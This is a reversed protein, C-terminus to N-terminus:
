WTLKQTWKKHNYKTSIEHAKCMELAPLHCNFKTELEVTPILKLDNFWGKSEGCSRNVHAGCTWCAQWGVPTVNYWSGAGKGSWHWHLGRIVDM